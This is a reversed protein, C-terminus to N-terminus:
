LVKEYYVTSNEKSFKAHFFTAEATEVDKHASM